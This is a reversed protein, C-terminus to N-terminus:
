LYTHMEKEIHLSPHLSYHGCVIFSEISRSNNGSGALSSFMHFLYYIELIDCASIYKKSIITSEFRRSKASKLV